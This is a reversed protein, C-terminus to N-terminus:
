EQIFEKRTFGERDTYGWVEGTCHPPMVLKHEKMYERIKKLRASVNSHSTYQIFRMYCDNWAILDFITFVDNSHWATATPIWVVWEELEEKARKRITAEKAM